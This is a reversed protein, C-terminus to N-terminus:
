ARTLFAAEQSPCSFSNSNLRLACFLRRIRYLANKFALLHSNSGIRTEAVIRLWRKVNCANDRTEASRDWAKWRADAKLFKLTMDSTRIRHVEFKRMFRRGLAVEAGLSHTWFGLRVSLFMERFIVRDPSQSNEAPKRYQM